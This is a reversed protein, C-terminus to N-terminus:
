RGARDSSFRPTLDHSHLTVSTMQSGAQGVALDALDALEALSELLPWALAPSTTILQRFEVAGVRDIVVDSSAVVSTPAPHTVLLARAGRHDGPRLRDIVQGDRRVEAEGAVVLVLAGEPEGQTALVTAAPLRLRCVLGALRAAEDDSCARFLPVARLATPDFRATELVTGDEPVPGTGWM